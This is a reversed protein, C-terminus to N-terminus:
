FITESLSEFTLLPKKHPPLDGKTISLCMGSCQKQTTLYVGEYESSLTNSSVLLIFFAIVGSAYVRVKDVMRKQSSQYFDAICYAAKLVIPILLFAFIQNQYQAFYDLSKHQKIIILLILLFVYSFLINEALWGAIKIYGKLSFLNKFFNFKKRDVIMIIWVRWLVYSYM